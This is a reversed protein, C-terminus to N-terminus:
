QGAAKVMPAVTRIVRGSDTGATDVPVVYERQDGFGDRPTLGLNKAIWQLMEEFGANKGSEMFLQKQYLV